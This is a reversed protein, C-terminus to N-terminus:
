GGTSLEPDADRREPLYEPLSIAKISYLVTRAVGFTTYTPEWIYMGAREGGQQMATVQKRLEVYFDKGNSMNKAIYTTLASYVSDSPQLFYSQVGM